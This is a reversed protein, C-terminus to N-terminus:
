AEEISELLLLKAIDVLPCEAHAAHSALLHQLNELRTKIVENIVCPKRQSTRGGALQHTM